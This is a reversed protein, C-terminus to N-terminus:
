IGQAQKPAWEFTSIRIRDKRLTERGGLYLSWKGFIAINKLEQSVEVLQFIKLDYQARQIRFHNNAEQVNLLWHTGERIVCGSTEYMRQVIPEYPGHHDVEFILDSSYALVKIQEPESEILYVPAGEQFLVLARDKRNELDAVLAFEGDKLHGILRVLQGANCESLPKIECDPLIIM